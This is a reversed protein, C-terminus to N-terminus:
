MSEHQLLICMSLRRVLRVVSATCAEVMVRRAWGVVLYESWFPSLIYSPSSFLVM